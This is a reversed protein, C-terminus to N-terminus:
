KICSVDASQSVNATYTRDPTLLQQTLNNLNKDRTIHINNCHLELLLVSIDASVNM